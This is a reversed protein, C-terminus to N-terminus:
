AGEKKAKEILAAAVKYVATDGEKVRAGPIREGEDIRRRIAPKILKRMVLYCDEYGRELLVDQLKEEDLVELESCDQLGFSGFTTKIKRPKQFLEKHTEIFRALACTMNNIQESVDSVSEAYEAKLAAIKKEYRAETVTRSIILRAAQDFLNAADEVSELRDRM